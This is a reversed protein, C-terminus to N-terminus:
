PTKKKELARKVKQLLERLGPQLDQMAPDDQMQQLRTVTETRVAPPLRPAIAPLTEQMYGTLRVLASHSYRVRDTLTLLLSKVLYTLANKMRELGHMRVPYTPDAKDLTPLFEDALELQVLLYRLYAGIVEVVETDRVEHNLFAFTYRKM